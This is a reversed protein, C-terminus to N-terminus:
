FSPSHERVGGMHSAHPPNFKWVIGKRSLFNKMDSSEVNIVKVDMCKAAGIFNTGMRM